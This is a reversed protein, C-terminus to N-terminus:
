ELDGIIVKGSIADVEMKLSTGKSDELELEFWECQGNPFFRVVYLEGFLEDVEENISEKDFDRIDLGEPLTQHIEKEVITSVSASGDIYGLRKFAEQDLDGDAENQTAVAEPGVALELTEPDIVLRMEQQKEIAMFHAYRAARAISRGATRLKTGRVGSMFLPTSIGFVVALIVLVLIIEILTFGATQDAPKMAKRFSCFHHNMPM